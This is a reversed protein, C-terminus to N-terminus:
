TYKEYLNQFWNKNNLEKLKKIVKPYAGEFTSTLKKFARPAVYNFLTCPIRGKIDLHQVM